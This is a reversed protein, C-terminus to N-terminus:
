LSNLKQLERLWETVGTCVVVDRKLLRANQPRWVRFLRRFMRQKEEKGCANPCVLKCQRTISQVAKMTAEPVEMSTMDPFKRDCRSTGAFTAAASPGACVEDPHKQDRSLHIFIRGHEHRSLALWSKAVASRLAELLTDDGSVVLARTCPPLPGIPPYTNQRWHTTHYVHGLDYHAIGGDRPVRVVIHYDIRGGAGEMKRVVTGDSDIDFKHLKWAM